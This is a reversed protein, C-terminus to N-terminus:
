GKEGSNFDFYLQFGERGSVAKILVNLLIKLTTMLDQRSHSTSTTYETTHISGQSRPNFQKVNDTVRQTFPNSFPVHSGFKKEKVERATM